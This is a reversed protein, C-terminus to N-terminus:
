KLIMFIVWLINSFKGSDNRLEIAALPGYTPSCKSDRYHLQIEYGPLLGTVPNSVIRTALDVSPLIEGLVEEDEVSIEPAIITFRVKRRSATCSGVLVWWVVVILIAKLFVPKRKKLYSGRELHFTSIFFHINNYILFCTSINRSLLQLENNKSLVNVTVTM